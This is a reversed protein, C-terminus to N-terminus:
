RSSRSTTSDRLWLTYHTTRVAPRFQRQALAEESANVLPLLQIPTDLIVANVPGGIAIGRVVEDNWINSTRTILDFFDEQGLRARAVDFGEARYLSEAERIVGYNEPYRILQLRNAEFAIFSPAIVEERANTAERLARALTRIEDRPMFGFGYVSRREWSENRLPTVWLLAAAIVAACAALRAVAAFRRTRNMVVERVADAIWSAGVGAIIAVYPIAELYNHGWATPSLVGYFLYEAGLLALVLGLPRNMSRAIAIRVAGLLFLPGLVDLITLPYLPGAGVPDRGKLFHFIFAQFLFDSGYRRYCFATLAALAGATALAATVARRPQREILLLFGLIVAAPIGATLKVGCALALLIATLAVQRRATITRDLVVSAAALVLASVFFERAWVHYRFVLSSCAYLLSAAIAAGRGVARRAFLFVLVSTAYIAAANLVEMRLHSGGALAVWAAGLWEVLPMQPQAFDVYPKLGKTIAYASELYLDDEVWVDPYLLRIARPVMLAVLLWAAIRREDPPAAPAHAPRAKRARKATM